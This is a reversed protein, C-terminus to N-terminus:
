RRVCVRNAPMALNIAKERRETGTVVVLDNEVIKLMERADHKVLNGAEDAVKVMATADGIKDQCPYATVKVTMASRPVPFTVHGEMRRNVRGGIRDILIIRDQAKALQRVEVVDLTGSPEVALLYTSDDISQVGGTSILIDSSEICGIMITLAIVTPGYFMILAKM